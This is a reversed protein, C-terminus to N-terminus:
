PPRFVGNSRDDLVRASWIHVCWVAIFASAVVDSVFHELAIVRSLGVVYALLLLPMRWAPLVRALALAVGFATFSHSSPFSNFPAGSFPASMGYFGSELFLHPRGRAVVQKLVWTLLGGTLLVLIVLLSSRALREMLPKSFLFFSTSQATLSAVYIALATLSFLEADAIKSVRIALGRISATHYDHIIRTLPGDVLAVLATIIVVFISACRAWQVIWGPIQSAPVPERM